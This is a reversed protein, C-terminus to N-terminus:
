CPEEGLNTILIKLHSRLSIYTGLTDALKIKAIPQLLSIALASFLLATLGAKTCSTSCRIDHETAEEFDSMSSNRLDVYWSIEVTYYLIGM